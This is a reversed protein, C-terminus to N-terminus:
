ARVHSAKSAGGAHGCLMQDSITTYPKLSAATRSVGATMMSSTLGTEVLIVEHGARRLRRALRAEHTLWWRNRTGLVVLSNPNLSSKLMELQNRCFCVRVEAKTPYQSAIMEFRRMTFTASVPPEDLPLQYPVMQAVLVVVRAGIPRALDGAKKLAILTQEQSTCVVFVERRFGCTIRRLGTDESTADVGEEVDMSNSMPEVSWSVVYASFGSSRTSIVGIFSSSNISIKYLNPSAMLVAFSGYGPQTTNQSDQHQKLISGRTRSLPADSRGICKERTKPCQM